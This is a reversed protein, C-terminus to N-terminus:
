YAVLVSLTIIDSRLRPEQESIASGSIYSGLVGLRAYIMKAGWSSFVKRKYIRSDVFLGLAGHLFTSAGKAFRTALLTM